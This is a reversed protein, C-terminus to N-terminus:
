LLGTGTAQARHERCSGATPLAPAAGRRRLSRCLTCPLERVALVTPNQILSKRYRYNQWSQFHRCGQTTQATGPHPNGPTGPTSDQWHCHPPFRSFLGQTVEGPQGVVAATHWARAMWRWCPVTGPVAATRGPTGQPCAARGAAAWLPCTLCRTVLQSKAPSFFIIGCGDTMVAPPGAPKDGLTECCGRATALDTPQTHPAPVAGREQQLVIKDQKPVAHCQRAM